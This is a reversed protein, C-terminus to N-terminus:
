IVLIKKDSIIKYLESYSVMSIEYEIKSFYSPETNSSTIYIIKVDSEDIGQESVSEIISDVEKMFPEARKSMTYVYRLILMKLKGDVSDKKTAVSIITKEDVIDASKTNGFGYDKFLDYRNWNEEILSSFEEPTMLTYDYFDTIKEVDKEFTGKNQHALYQYLLKTYGESKKWNQLTQLPIGLKDHIYKDKLMKNRKLTQIFM